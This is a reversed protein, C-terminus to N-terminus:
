CRAPAARPAASCPSAGDVSKDTASSRAPGRAAATTGNAVAYETHSATPASARRSSSQRVAGSNWRAYTAVIPTAAMMTAIGPRGSSVTRTPDCVRLATSRHGCSTSMRRNARSRATM